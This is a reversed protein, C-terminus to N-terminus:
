KVEVEEFWFEQEETQTVNYVRGQADLDYDLTKNNILNFLHDSAKRKTGYLAIVTDWADVGNSNHETVMYIKMPTPRTIKCEVCIDHGHETTEWLHNPQCSM